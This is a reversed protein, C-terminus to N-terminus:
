EKIGLAVMLARCVVVADVRSLVIQRGNGDLIRYYKGDPGKSPYVGLQSPPSKVDDYFHYLGVQKEM